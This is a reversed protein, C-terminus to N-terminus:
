LRSIDRELSDVNKAYVLSIQTANGSSLFM